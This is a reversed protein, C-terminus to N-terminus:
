GVKPMPPKGPPRPKPKASPPPPPPPPAPIICTTEELTEVRARGRVAGLAGFDLDFSVDIPGAPSLAHAKLSAKVPLHASAARGDESIWALVRAKRHLAPDFSQGELQLVLEEGLSIGTAPDLSLALVQDDVNFQSAAAPLWLGLSLGTESAERCRTGKMVIPASALELRKGERTLTGLVGVPPLM